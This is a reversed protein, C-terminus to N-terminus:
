YRMLYAPPTETITNALWSSLPNQVALKQLKYKMRPNRNELWIGDNLYVKTNHISPISFLSEDQCLFYFDNYFMLLSISDPGNVM